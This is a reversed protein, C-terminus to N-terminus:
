AQPPDDLESTLSLQLECLAGLDKPGAALALAANLYRRRQDAERFARDLDPNLGM